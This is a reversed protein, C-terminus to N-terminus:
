LYQRYVPNNYSTKYVMPAPYGKQSRNTAPHPTISNHCSLSVRTKYIILTTTFKMDKFSNWYKIGHKVLDCAVLIVIM